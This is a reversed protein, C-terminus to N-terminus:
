ALWRRGDDYFESDGAGRVAHSALYGVTAVLVLALGAGAGLATWEVLTWAALAAAVALIVTRLVPNKAASKKDASRSRDRVDDDTSYHPRLVASSMSM